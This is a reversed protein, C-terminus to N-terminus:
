GKNERQIRDVGISYDRSDTAGTAAGAPMRITARQAPKFFRQKPPKMKGAVYTSDEARVATEYHVAFASGVAFLLTGITAFALFTKTTKSM